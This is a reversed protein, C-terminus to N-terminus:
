GARAPKHQLEMRCLLAARKAMRAHRSSPELELFRSLLPLAEACRGQKTLLVGLYFHADANDPQAKIARRYQAVALDSQGEEEATLALNYWAEAFAPERAVAIQWAIKAEATRGQADFVNGLNFPLVPDSSDARMATTYLSEASTLDSRAEADEGAAFLEDVSRADQHLPMTLQGDLEALQGAVERVLEGSRSETLRAESLHNGRRGLAMAAELIRGLEVGRQLLRKVERAAVLDRYSFRDENPELVDFLSLCAIITPTLGSLRQMDQVALSRDVTELPASLGLRRRLDQESMLMAAKPSGAPLRLTGDPLAASSAATHGIAVVTVKPGPKSALRGGRARVLQDLRQRTVGHLRGAVVIVQGALPGEESRQSGSKPM